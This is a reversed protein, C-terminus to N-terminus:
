ETTGERCYSGRAVVERLNLIMDKNENSIQIILYRGSKNEWGQQSPIVIREGPTGPGAFTGLLKGGSFKEAGSTPIEDALWIEVNRTRNHCCDARNFLVVETVSVKADEGYDIALWPAKETDTACLSFNPDWFNEPNDIVGDVCKEPGLRKGNIQNM